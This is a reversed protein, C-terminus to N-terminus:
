FTFSTQAFVGNIRPLGPRRLNRYELKFASFTTIDYRMGLTSGALDPIGTFVPDSSPMHIYEWRYYPKWRQGFEPLRYGLQVYFAQSNFSGPRGTETHNVNAFEAIFEPNEKAWVLHASSIWEDFNRTGVGIKDRYLSGGAQLGFLRDPKVFLNVLWARNNNVDGADGARSLISGRGNGVGVNYNLHLGGAPVAGEILGGVFHVPIFKGGFQVMEPRAATTQLWAGHHFATNWWNIPTHFRGFSVKFYDSQDYRIVIREVEANFGTAPPTGTGADPRATLTLEGFVTVKKSLASATHLTFQGENFGSKVGHQDTASFDVDSFGSLKLLPAQPASQAAETAALHDDHSGPPPQPSLNSPQAVSATVAPPEVRAAGATGELDAVRKELRDIRALLARITEATDASNPTQAVLAFQGVLMLLCANGCARNM